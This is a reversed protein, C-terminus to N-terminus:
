YQPSCGGWLQIQSPRGHEPTEASSFWGGVRPSPSIPILHTPSPAGGPGGTGCEGGSPGPVIRAWRLPLAGARHLPRGQLGGSVGAADAERGREAFCEQRLTAEGWRPLCRAGRSVVLVWGMGCLRGPGGWRQLRPKGMLAGMGAALSSLWLPHSAVKPARFHIRADRLFAPTQLSGLRLQSKTNMLSPPVQLLRSAAIPGM